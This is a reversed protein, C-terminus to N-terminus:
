VRRSPLARYAGRHLRSHLYVLRDELGAEYEQWTVGDVGPAARRHLSGFSHRLLHLRLLDWDVIETRTFDGFRL